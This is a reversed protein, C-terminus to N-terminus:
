RRQNIGRNNSHQNILFHIIRLKLIVISRVKNISCVFKYLLM